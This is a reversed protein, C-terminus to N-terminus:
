KNSAAIELEPLAMMHLKPRGKLVDRMVGVGFSMGRLHLQVLSNWNVSIGIELTILCGNLSLECLFPNTYFNLPLVYKFLTLSLNEVRSRFLM